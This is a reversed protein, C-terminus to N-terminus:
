GDLISGPVKGLVMLKKTTTANINVSMESTMVVLVHNTVVLIRWFVGMFFLRVMFNYYHVGFLM